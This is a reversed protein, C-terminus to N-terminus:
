TAILGEIALPDSHFTVNSIITKRINPKHIKRNNIITINHSFASHLLFLPSCEFLAFYLLQDKVRKYRM